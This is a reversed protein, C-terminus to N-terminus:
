NLQDKLESFLWLDYDIIRSNDYKEQPFAIFNLTSILGYHKSLQIEKDNLEHTVLNLDKDLVQFSITKTSDTLTLFTELDFDSVKARVFISDKISFAIWEEDKKADIKIRITDGDGNFFYNWTENIVIKDGLFSAGFLNFENEGIQQINKIPYFISDGSDVKFSDIQFGKLFDGEFFTIKDSYVAQYDFSFLKLSSFLVLFSILINTKM